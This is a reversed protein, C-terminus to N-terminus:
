NYGRINKYVLHRKNCCKDDNYRGSIWSMCERCFTREYLNQVAKAFRLIEYDSIGEAWQSYHCSIMNRIFSFRDLENVEKELGIRSLVKKLGFWLDHITYSDDQNRFIQSHLSMSLNECIMEFFPGATSAIIHIDDTEMAKLLREDAGSSKYEKINPGSDFSWGVINFEKFPHYGGQELNNFLYRLQNQWARDHCTIFLQWDHFERLIYSMFKTRITADVSQLVDDLILVKAQGKEAGVRIMSIYLLLIMLDYNAESFIREPPVEWGNKLTVIIEFSAVSIDAIAFGISNIYDANSIEKFASSLYQAAKDYRENLAEFKNGEADGKPTFSQIQGNKENIRESLLDIEKATQIAKEYDKPHLAEKSKKSKTFEMKGNPIFRSKVFKVLGTQLAQRLVRKEILLLSELEDLLPNRLLKIQQLEERLNLVEPNSTTKTSLSFDYFFESLLRQKQDVPCMNFSIIDNRRLVIPSFRFLNHCVAPTVNFIYKNSLEDLSVSIDRINISEDDFLVATHADKYNEYFVSLALPRRINKIAKSREIRAQLNFEIADIISSKGCGNGGYIIASCANGFKDRFDLSCHGPIGRFREIDIKAIRM